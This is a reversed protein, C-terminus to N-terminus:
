HIPSARPPLSRSPAHPTTTAHVFIVMHQTHVNAAGVVDHWRAELEGRPIFAYTGHTSPDMFFFNRADYGVLVVYHGDNWDTQWPKLDALRQVDQWAQIDVIPPEGRDVARELDAVGVDGSQYEASVGAVRSLYDAMPAPDTGDKASTHLPAYLATEPTHAFDDWKWYRLLALTAVDGCSYDEHQRVLPVPLTNDPLGFTVAQDSTESAADDSPAPTCAALPAFLAFSFLAVAGLRLASM